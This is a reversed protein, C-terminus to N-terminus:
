GHMAWGLQIPKTKFNEKIDHGAAVIDDEGV